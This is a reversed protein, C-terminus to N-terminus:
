LGFFVFFTVFHARWFHRGSRSHPLTLPTGRATMMPHEPDYSMQSLAEM